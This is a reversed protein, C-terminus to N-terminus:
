AAVIHFFFDVDANAAQAANFGEFEFIKTSIGVARVCGAGIPTAVPLGSTPLNFALTVTYKGLATRTCTFGEGYAIAGTAGIICGRVIQPAGRELGGLRRDQERQRQETAQNISTPVQRANHSWKIAM